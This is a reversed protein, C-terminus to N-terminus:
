RRTSTRCGLGTYAVICAVYAVLKSFRLFFFVHTHLCASTRVHLTLSFCVMFQVFAADMADLAEKPVHMDESAGSELLTQFSQTHTPDTVSASLEGYGLVEGMQHTTASATFIEDFTYKKVFLHHKPPRGNVTSPQAYESFESFALSSCEGGSLQAHYETQWGKCWAILEESLKDSADPWWAKLEKLIKDCANKTLPKQDVISCRSRILQREAETLTSEPRLIYHMFDLLLLMKWCM